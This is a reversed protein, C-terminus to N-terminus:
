AAILDSTKKKKWKIERITRCMEAGTKCISQQVLVKRPDHDLSTDM